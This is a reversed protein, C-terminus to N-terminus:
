ARSRLIELEEDLEGDYLLTYLQLVNNRQGRAVFIEVESNPQIRNDIIEFDKFVFLLADTTGKMDGYLLPKDLEPQYLGTLYGGSSNLSLDTKRKKNTSKNAYNNTIYFVLDDKKNRLREFESYSKTSTNCNVRWKSKDLDTNYKELKYYDTLIM